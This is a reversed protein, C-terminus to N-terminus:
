RPGHPGRDGHTGSRRRPSTGHQRLPVATGAVAQRKILTNLESEQVVLGPLAGGFMSVERAVRQAARYDACIWLMVPQVEFYEWWAGADYYRAYSLLKGRIEPLSLTGRDYELVFPEIALHPLEVRGRRRWILGFLRRTRGGMESLFLPFPPVM